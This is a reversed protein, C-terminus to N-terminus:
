NGRHIRPSSGAGGGGAEREKGPEPAPDPIHFLFAPLPAPGGRGEAARVRGGARRPERLVEPGGGPGPPRGAMQMGCGRGRRTLDPNGAAGKGWTGGLLGLQSPSASPLSAQPALAAPGWTQPLSSSSCLCPPHPAQMGVWGWGPSLCWLVTYVSSVEGAGPSAPPQAPLWHPLPGLRTRPRGVHRTRPGPTPLSVEGRLFAPPLGECLRSPAM